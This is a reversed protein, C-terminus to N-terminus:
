LTALLLTRIPARSPISAVCRKRMLNMLLFVQQFSPSMLTQHITNTLAPGRLRLLATMADQAKLLMIGRLATMMAFIAADQGVTMGASTRVTGATTEVSVEVTRVANDVVIMVISIVVIGVVSTVDIEEVTMAASGKVRAATEGVIMVVSTVDIEEAITVASARDVAVTEGVIMEVSAAVTRVASGVVIMVISIVVIGVVTMVASTEEAVAVAVSIMEGAVIMVVSVVVIEEVTMAGSARVKAVTEGVTTVVGDVVTMVVSTADIEEVTMAGSVKAAAVVTMVISIVVIGVVTMVASTEEAVRGARAVVITAILDGGPVTVATVGNAGREMTVIEKLDVEIIRRWPTGRNRCPTTEPKDKRPRLLLAM